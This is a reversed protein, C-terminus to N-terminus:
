KKGTGEIIPADQVSAAFRKTARKAAWKTTYGEGVAMIKNNNGILHWYWQRGLLKTSKSKFVRFRAM